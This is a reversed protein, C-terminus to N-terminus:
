VCGTVSKYMDVVEASNINNMCDALLQGLQIFLGTVCSVVFM